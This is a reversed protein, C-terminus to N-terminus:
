IVREIHAFCYELDESFMRFATGHDHPRGDKYQGIRIDVMVTYQRHPVRSLVTGQVLRWQVM